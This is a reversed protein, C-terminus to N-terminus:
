HPAMQWGGAPVTPERGEGSSLGLDSATRLSAVFRQKESTGMSKLLARQQSESLLDFGFARPDQRQEWGSAWRLYQGETGPAHTRMFEQVKAQQMRRVSLAVKAVDVAAANAMKTNPNSSFTAALRDNTQGSSVQNSWDILYKHAKDFDTVKTPDINLADGMGMSMLFSKVQNVQETGPGTGTTGLRELAPIAQELPLVDRRYNASRVLHDAFLDGSVKLPSESGPAPGRVFGPTAATAGPGFRQEYAQTSEPVTVPVNGPGVTEVSKGSAAGLWNRLGVLDARLSNPDASSRTLDKIVGASVGYRRLLPMKEALFSFATKPNQLRPDDVWNSIYDAALRSREVTLNTGARDADVFAQVDSPSIFPATQVAKQTAMPIDIGGPADPSVSEKLARGIASRTSFENARIALGMIDNISMPQPVNKNYFSVDPTLDPM